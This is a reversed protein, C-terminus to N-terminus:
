RMVNHFRYPHQNLPIGNQRPCRGEPHRRPPLRPQPLGGHRETRLGGHGPRCQFRGLCQSPPNVPFSESGAPSAPLPEASGEEGSPSAVRSARCPVRSFCVVLFLREMGSLVRTVWRIRDIFCLGHNALVNLAIQEFQQVNQRFKNMWSMPLPRTRSAM